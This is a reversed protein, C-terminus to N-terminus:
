LAQNVKTEYEGPGHRASKALLVGVQAFSKDLGRGVGIEVYGM